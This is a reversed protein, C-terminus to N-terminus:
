LIVEVEVYSKNVPRILNETQKIGDVFIESVGFSVGSKNKVIINYVTGRFTRKVKYEKWEKPICPDILLGDETPRIGLIWELVVKSYWQASGTYWTWGAMGYNPSDPGDINGPTVYPEAVYKDPDM